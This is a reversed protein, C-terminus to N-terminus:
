LQPNLSPRPSKLSHTNNKRRLDKGQAANSPTKLSAAPPVHLLPSPRLFAKVPRSSTRVTEPAPTAPPFSWGLGKQGGYQYSGLIPPGQYLGRFVTVRIILVRLVLVGSKPFGRVVGSSFGEAM